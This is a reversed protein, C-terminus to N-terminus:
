KQSIYPIRKFNYNAKSIIIEKQQFHMQSSCVILKSIQSAAFLANTIDRTLSKSESNYKKQLNLVIDELSNGLMECNNLNIKGSLILKILKAHLNIEYFM